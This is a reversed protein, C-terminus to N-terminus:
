TIYSADDIKHYPIFHTMKSFKDVVVMITDKGRQTMPFAVIFYMSVDDSPQIPVLLPTYFGQHFQSKAKHCISCASVVKHVDSGM